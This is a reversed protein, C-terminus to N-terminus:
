RKLTQKTIEAKQKGLKLMQNTVESRQDSNGSEAKRIEAKTKHGEEEPLVDEAGMLRWKETAQSVRPM